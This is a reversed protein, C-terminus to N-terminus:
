KTNGVVQRVSVYYLYRVDEERVKIWYRDDNESVNQYCNTEAWSNVCSFIRSERDYNRAYVAHLYHQPNYVLKPKYVVVM